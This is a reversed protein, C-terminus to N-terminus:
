YVEPAAMLQNPNVAALWMDVEALGTKGAATLKSPDFEYSVGRRSFSTVNRPIRCDDDGNCFSIIERALNATLVDVGAPIPIGRLYTVSWTNSKGLPRNKDQRPWSAGSTRYLADGELQYDDAALTVDVIRVSLISHAPGPLHVVRPGTVTCNGECGCSWPIWTNAYYDLAELYTFYGWGTAYGPCPRVTTEILGYQRGSLAWLIFRAQNVAQQQAAVAAAYEDLADWTPEEGLGPLDPLCDEAVPWWPEEPEQNVWFGSQIVNDVAGGATYAWKHVGSDTALWTVTYVGTGVQVVEPDVGFVWSNVAGDPSTLTFTLTTPDTPVDDVSFEAGIQITDGIDYVAAVDSM